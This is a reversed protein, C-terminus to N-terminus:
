KEVGKSSPFFPRSFFRPMPLILGISSFIIASAM